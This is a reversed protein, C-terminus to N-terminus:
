FSGVTVNETDATENLTPATNQNLVFRQHLKALIIVVIICIIAKLFMGTQKKDAIKIQKYNPVSIPLVRDALEDYEDPDLPWCNPLCPSIFDTGRTMQMMVSGKKKIRKPDCQTYGPPYQSNNAHIKNPDYFMPHLLGLGHGVEHNIVYIRYEELSMGPPNELSIPSQGMWNKYNIYVSHSSPDYCSMTRTKCVTQMKDLPSLEIYLNNYGNDVENFIFGYKKWGRDDNLVSNVFNRFEALSVVDRLFPSVNVTYSVVPM